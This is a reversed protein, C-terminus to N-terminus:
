LGCGRATPASLQRRRALAQVTGVIGGPAKILLIITVVANLILRFDAFARFYEPLLTMLVAGLVPGYLTGIGGVVVMGLLGFSEASQFSYPSVYGLLHSFCAGGLGAYFSSIGFAMVRYYAVSIGMAEAATESDMIARLALGVHSHVIRAKVWVLLAVLGLMFYYQPVEDVLSFSGISIPPIGRLGGPGNTLSKWNIIILILIESFGLTVISLYHGQLKLTPIGLLVGVSAVAIGAALMAVPVPVEHLSLLASVYAGLGFLGAHGLSLKGTYGTLINLGMATVSYILAVVLLHLLYINRLVVPLLAAVLWFYLSFTKTNARM